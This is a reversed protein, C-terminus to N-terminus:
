SNPLAPKNFVNSGGYNMNGQQEFKQLIDNMQAQSLLLLDKLFKSNEINVDEKELLKIMADLTTM